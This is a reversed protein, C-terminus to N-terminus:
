VVLVSRMSQDSVKVFYNTGAVVQTKYSLVELSTFKVNSQAELDPKIKDVIAQVKDDPERVAGLGGTIQEGPLDDMDKTISLSAKTKEPTEEGSM